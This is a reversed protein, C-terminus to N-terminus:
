VTGDSDVISTIVATDAGVPLLAMDSADNTPLVVSGSGGGAGTFTYNVTFSAHVSLASLFFLLFIKKM